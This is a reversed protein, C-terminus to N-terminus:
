REANVVCVQVSHEEFGSLTRGLANRGPKGEIDGVFHVNLM